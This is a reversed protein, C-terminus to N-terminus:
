QNHKARRVFLLTAGGGIALATLLGQVGIAQDPTDDAASVPQTTTTSTAPVFATNCQEIVEEARTFGGVKAIGKDICSSLSKTRESEAPANLEALAKIRELELRESQLAIEQARLEAEARSASYSAWAITGTGILVAAGAALAAKRRRTLTPTTTKQKGYPNTEPTLTM